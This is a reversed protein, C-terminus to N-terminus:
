EIQSLLWLCLFTIGLPETFGNMTSKSVINILFLPKNKDASFFYLSLFLFFFRKMVILSSKFYFIIQSVNENSSIISQCTASHTKSFVAAGLPM